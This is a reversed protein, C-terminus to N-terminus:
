ESLREQRAIKSSIPTYGAAEVLLFPLSGVM